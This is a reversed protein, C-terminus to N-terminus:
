AKETALFCASCLKIGVSTNALIACDFAQVGARRLALCTVLPLPSSLTVYVLQATYLLTNHQQSVATGDTLPFAFLM